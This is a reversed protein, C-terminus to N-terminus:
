VAPGHYYGPGWRSRSRGAPRSTRLAVTDSEGDARRKAPRRGGPRGYSVPAGTYVHLSLIHRVRRAAPDAARARLRTVADEGRITVAVLVLGVALTAALVVGAIMYPLLPGTLVAMLLRDPSRM